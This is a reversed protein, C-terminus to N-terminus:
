PGADANWAQIAGLTTLLRWRATTGHSLAAAEDSLAVSGSQGARTLLRAARGPLAPKAEALSITHSTDSIAKSLQKNRKALKGDLRIIV